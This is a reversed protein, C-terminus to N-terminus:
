RAPPRDTPLLTNAAARAARAQQRAIAAAREAAAVRLQAARIAGPAAQDQLEHHLARALDAAAYADAAAREAARAGQDAAAWANQAPSPTAFDDTMLPPM